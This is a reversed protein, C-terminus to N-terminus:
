SFYRAVIKDIMDELSMSVDLAFADKSEELANFQSKLMEPKMYHGVRTSMRSWILEYNGKLYIIEIGDVDDLLQARYKEKLASCALVPHRNAELTSLLIEHLSTLWPVRDSDSLPIGATMKAINEPPHFDDADFFDWGLKQALAQGLTTKGSGSVGMILFGNPQTM